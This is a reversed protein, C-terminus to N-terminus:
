LNYRMSALDRRLTDTTLRNTDATYGAKKLELVVEERTDPLHNPTRMRRVYDIAWRNEDIDLLARRRGGSAHYVMTGPPAYVSLSLFEGETIPILDIAM